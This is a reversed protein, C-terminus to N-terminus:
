SRTGTGMQSVVCVGNRLTPLWFRVSGAFQTNPPLVPPM